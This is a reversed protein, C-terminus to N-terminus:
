GEEVLGAGSWSTLAERVIGTSTSPDVAAIHQMTRVVKEFAYGRSVLDWVAAEPHVLVRVRGRGDTVTVTTHGVQWRVGAAMRYRSM